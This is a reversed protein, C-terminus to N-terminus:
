DKMPLVSASASDGISQGGSRLLRSVPIQQQSINLAPPSPSSLPHSPQIPDGVRHVHTQALELLHHIVPFGPTSCDMPNCLTPCVSCSFLLSNHIQVRGQGLPMIEKAELKTLSIEMPRSPFGSTCDKGNPYSKSSWPKCMCSYPLMATAAMPNTHIAPSQQALYTTNNSTFWM